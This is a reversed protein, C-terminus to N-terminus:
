TQFTKWSSRRGARLSIVTLTNVVNRRLLIGGVLVTPMEECIKTGFRMLILGYTTRHGKVRDCGNEIALAVIISPIEDVNQEMFTLQLTVSCYNGGNDAVDNRISIFQKLNRLQQDLSSHKMIRRQTVDTAGNWSIKVDSTVPVILRAWADVGRGIFSGNTTLNLKIDHKHCLSIMNPFEKYMLPEGMTTPIIEKLGRPALESVKQEILKFDMRRRRIKDARRQKQHPSFESHQECMTCSFNCDDPNTDFTVRWPASLQESPAPATHEKVSQDLKSNLLSAYLNRVESLHNDIFPVQGDSSYLYGRRGLDKLGEQQYIANEMAEALSQADRHKFTLGNVGSKVLEGMGGEASTIVPVGCQQAEHIVLPGNERWISPVVICDSVNFVSTVINENAYEPRWEITEQKGDNLKRDEIM